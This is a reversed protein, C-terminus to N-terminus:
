VMPGNHRTDSIPRTELNTVRVWSNTGVITRVDIDGNEYLIMQHVVWTLAPKNNLQAWHEGKKGRISGMIIICIWSVCQIIFINIPWKVQSQLRAHIILQASMPPKTNLSM